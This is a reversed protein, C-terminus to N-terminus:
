GVKKWTTLDLPEALLEDAVRLWNKIHETEFHTKLNEESEWNEHFLFLSKDILGQHMDYNICGKEARTPRVLALLENKAKEEMGVKVKILAMVTVKKEAM